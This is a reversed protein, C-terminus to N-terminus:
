THVQCKWPTSFYTLYPIVQDNSSLCANRQPVTLFGWDVMPMVALPPALGPVNHLPHADGGAELLLVTYNESLRAALPSGASGAGVAFKYTSRAYIHM